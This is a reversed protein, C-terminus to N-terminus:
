YGYDEHSTGFQRTWLLNGAADYRSLFTDNLGASPGNLNDMTNGTIFVSGASVVSVGRASAGSLTQKWLVSQASANLAVCLIAVVAVGVFKAEFTRYLHMRQEGGAM